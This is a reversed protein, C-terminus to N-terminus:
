QKSLLLEERVMTKDCAPCKQTTCKVDKQHPIKEGCNACICYGGQGFSGGKNKGKGSGEEADHCHGKGEGHKSDHCRGHGGGNKSGCCHGHEHKHEHKKTEM